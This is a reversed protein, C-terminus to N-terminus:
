SLRPPGTYGMSPWAAEAGYWAGLILDHLAGYGANLLAVPARRWRELFGAAAEPTVSFWDNPLGALLWRGPALSLLAFLDQTERQHAACLGSIAVGVGAVASEVAAQRASQEEPLAGALVAPVLARIIAKAEDGYLAAPRAKLRWLGGGLALLAAGAVGTKIFQRRRTSDPLGSSDSPFDAM